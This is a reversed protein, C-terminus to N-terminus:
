NYKAYWPPCDWKSSRSIQMDVVIGNHTFVQEEDYEAAVYKPSPKKFIKMLQTCTKWLEGEQDYNESWSTNLYERDIYLIPKSYAHQNYGTPIGEIVWVPRREWNVSVSWLFSAVGTRDDAAAALMERNQYHCSQAALLNEKEALIRWTRYGPKAHVVEISHIDVETSWFADSRNAVSIRRVRRLEPLYMNSNDTNEFPTYRFNLM